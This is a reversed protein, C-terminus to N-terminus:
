PKSGYARSGFFLDKLHPTNPPFKVKKLIREMEAWTLSRKQSRRNLYKFLMIRVEMVFQSIRKQNDNIAFYNLYGQVIQKVRIILNKKHRNARIYAKIEALKKRFRKPCTRRKVRWFWVGRRHNLSKGWVHLFGLFTFTPM